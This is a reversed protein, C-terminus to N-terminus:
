SEDSPRTERYAALSFPVDNKGRNVTLVALMFQSYQNDTLQEAFEAWDAPAFEVAEGDPRSVSVISAPSDSSLVADFITSTNVGYREDVENDERAPHADEFAAWDKRPLARIQFTVTDAKARDEIDRIRQALAQIPDNMRPDLIKQKRAEELEASLAEHEAVLSGDLCVDVRKEPRKVTLAM